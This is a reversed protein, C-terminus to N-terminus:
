YGNNSNGGLLKYINNKLVFFISVVVGLSLLAYYDVM